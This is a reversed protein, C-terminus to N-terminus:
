KAKALSGVYDFHLNTTVSDSGVMFAVTIATKTTGFVTLKAPDIQVVLQSASSSKGKVVPISVKKSNDAASTLVIAQVSSLNTGVITLPKAANDKTFDFSSPSSSSAAPAAAKSNATSATQKPSATGTYDFTQTTPFPKSGEALTISLPTKATRFVSLASPDVEVLLKTDSKLADQKLPVSVKKSGDATSLTVTDVSQLHNGIITLFQPTKDKSYDISTPSVQSVYPETPLHLSITTKQEVGQGSVTFVDYAPQTLGHLASSVFTVTANSSDGNVSVNGEATSTDTADKANRLRLKSIKDLNKGAVPCAMTDKEPTPFVLTGSSDLTCNLASVTSLLQSDEIIHTGSVVVNSLERFITLSNGNWKRYPSPYANRFLDVNTEHDVLADAGTTVSTGSTPLQLIKNRDKAPLPDLGSALELQCVELARAPDIGIGPAEDRLKHKKKYNSSHVGIPHTDDPSQERLYGSDNTALNTVNGWRDTTGLYMKDVCRQTWWGEEFQKSPVFTVFMVTGSQPVVTQSSAQSSFGTDNLLNLQDTSQDKWYKDLGPVFAGTFVAAANTLSANGFIPVAASMIASIGMASHVTINRPDFSNQTSSLARVIVKDRGSFFRGLRGTPDENVEFEVDHLVFSQTRNLNRVVVQVAIYTRAILYGFAQKTEDYTLISM